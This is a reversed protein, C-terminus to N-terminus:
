TGYLIVPEMAVRMIRHSMAMFELIHVNEKGGVWDYNQWLPPLFPQHM